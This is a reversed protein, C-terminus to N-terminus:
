YDYALIEASNTDASITNNLKNVLLFCFAQFHSSSDYNIASVETSKEEVGEWVYFLLLCM